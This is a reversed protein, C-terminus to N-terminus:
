LGSTAFDHLRSEGLALRAAGSLWSGGHWAVSAIHAVVDLEKLLVTAASPAFGLPSEFSLGVGRIAFDVGRVAAEHLRHVAAVKFRREGGHLLELLHAMQM